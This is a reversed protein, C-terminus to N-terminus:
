GVNSIDFPLKRIRKGTALFIANCLAPTFPAFGPEGVGGPAERNEMIHIEIPPIESMRLVEYQHFNTEQPVGGVITIGPKIAASLAMIVNGETQAVVTDPNIYMGCDIVGIVSEIVVGKGEPKVTIAYAATSGFSHAIAVGVSKGLARQQYYKSKEALANLLATWRPVGQLMSLRFDLPDKGAALAMEDMFCEHGFGNTSSYVARWWVVPITTENLLFAQRRNPIAYPSTEQNIAEDAWDDIKNSLDIQFAQHQISAGVVKHEWAMLNGQADLGGKIANVMGPRFPGNAMDDERTWILKVPAAMKKSLAVAELAYDLYAKRGFSGGMFMVHVTVNEPPIKLYRAVNDILQTQGQVPAWIEVKDGFVWATANMPEIPAHALFPTEYQAELVKAAGAFGVKVDGVADPYTLGEQAAKARCEAFYSETSVSEYGTNDWEVKLARRAKLASWYTDAVVAVVEVVKYPMKRESRFVGKVGPMQAVVDGNFNVVKGHIAPCHEVSAYLMNPIKADIGFKAKGSVKQPIDPRQIPKGLLTFDAPDKLKPDKPVPLAAAEAVLAGFTFTAGGSRRWVKGEKTYCESVPVQWRTAAAQILMERAAAGVQRLPIWSQRVSGSGGVFQRGYPKTGDTLRIDVQDLTVGLEEAILAPMSQWTGQGMEPRPNFLTIRNDPTILIFHNLAVEGDDGDM